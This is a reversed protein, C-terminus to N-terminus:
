STMRGITGGWWFGHAMPRPLNWLRCRNLRSARAGCCVCIGRSPWNVGCSNWITKPKRGSLADLVSDLYTLEERGKAIQETLIKEATCAKKYAQYYKQANQPPTLRVDLPIQVTPCDPEYFDELVAEADGKHLRYLNASILDAKRRDDEKETCAELDASQTAIRRQIRETAHLLLHFLDNARQKLRVMHDRSAFFEDLLACASPMEKTMM